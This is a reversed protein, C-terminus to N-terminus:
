LGVMKGTRKVNSLAVLVAAFSETSEVCIQVNAKTIAHQRVAVGRKSIVGGRLIQYVMDVSLSVRCLLSRLFAIAQPDYDSDGPKPVFVCALCCEVVNGQNILSQETDLACLRLTPIRGALERVALCCRTDVMSVAKLLTTYQFNGYDVTISGNRM